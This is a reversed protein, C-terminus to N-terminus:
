YDLLVLMLVFCEGSTYVMMMADNTARENADDALSPRMAVVTLLSPFM